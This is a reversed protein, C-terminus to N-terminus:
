IKLVNLDVCNTWNVALPAFLTSTSLITFVNKLYATKTLLYNIKGDVVILAMSSFRALQM